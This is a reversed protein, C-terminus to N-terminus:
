VEKELAFFPGWSWTIETIDNYCFLRVRVLDAIRVDLFFAFQSYDDFSSCPICMDKVILFICQINATNNATM